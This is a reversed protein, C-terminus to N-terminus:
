NKLESLIMENNENLKEIQSLIIKNNEELSNLKKNIKIINNVEDIKFIIIKNSMYKYESGVANYALTYNYVPIYNDVNRTSCYQYLTNQLNLEKRASIIINLFM